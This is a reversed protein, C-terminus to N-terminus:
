KLEEIKEILWPRARVGVANHVRKRLAEKTLEKKYPADCLLKVIRTFSKVTNKIYPSINKNKNVYRNFNTCKSSILEIDRLEYACQITLTHVSLTYTFDGGGTQILVRLCKKYQKQAYYLHAKALSVTNERVDNNLFDTYEDIFKELWEVELLATALYMVNIFHPTPIYGDKLLLNNDINYVYWDFLKKRYRERGEALRRGAHTLLFNLLSYQEASNGLHLHEFILKELQDYTEDKDDYYLDLTLEYIKFLKNKRFEPKRIEKLVEPLLAIQGVAYQGVAYKPDFSMTEASYRLKVACFFKDMDSMMREINKEEKYKQPLVGYFYAEHRLRWQNFYYFMDREPSSDSKNRMNKIGRFFLEDMRRDKMADLLIFDRTLPQEKLEAYILYDELKKTLDSMWDHIQRDRVQQNKSVKKLFYGKELKPSGYEPSYKKIYDYLKVLNDDRNFFPTKIYRGFELLESRSLGKFLKILKSSHM